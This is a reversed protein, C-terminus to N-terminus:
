APPAAAPRPNTVFVLGGLLGAVATVGFWMLSLVVAESPAIGIRGLLLVYGGERVGFGGLSVPLATALVVLPHFVLCYWFPLAAGISRGLLYQVAVQSLHFVVSLAATWALLSGDRWFPALEKEVWRRLRQERPLVRILWPAAVWGVFLLLGVTTVSTALARPLRPHYVAQTVAALAVLMALGSMRDFLVSGAALLRRQGRGLYMVRVADGGLTSPGFLNFFMGIAYFRAYDGFPRYLGVARGLLFWRVASLGQGLLYLLVAAGLIGPHVRRMTAVLDSPSVRTLVYAAVGATGAVRLFTLTARRFGPV